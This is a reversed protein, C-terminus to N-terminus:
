NANGGFSFAATGTSFGGTRTSFGGTRTSGFSFKPKPAFPNETSECESSGISFRVAPRIFDSLDGPFYYDLVKKCREEESDRIFPGPPPTDVGQAQLLSRIRLQDIIKGFCYPSQEVFVERNKLHLRKLENTANMLLALTGTRHIGMDKFDQKEMALLEAGTISERRLVAVTHKPIGEVSQAWEVVKENPWNRVSTSGGDSNWKPDNFQKALVSDPCLGLTSRRTSMKVGSVNLHVIDGTSNGGFFHGIM